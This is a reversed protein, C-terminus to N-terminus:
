ESTSLISTKTPLSGMGSCSLMRIESRPSVDGSLSNKFIFGDLILESM